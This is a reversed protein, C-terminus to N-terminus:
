AKLLKLAEPEDRAFLVPRSQMKSGYVRTLGDYAMRLLIGAGIIVRQGENPRAEGSSFLDGAVRMFDNPIGGAERLDILLHTTHPVSSILGDAQQVADYFHSWKWGRSFRLHVINQQPNYWNVHIGM